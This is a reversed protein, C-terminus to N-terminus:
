VNGYASVGEYVSCHQLKGLLYSNQALNIVTFMIISKTGTVFFCSSKLCLIYPRGVKKECPEYADQFGKFVRSNQSCM